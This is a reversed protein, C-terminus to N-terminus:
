NLFFNEKQVLCSQLLTTKYGLKNIWMCEQCELLKLKKCFRQPFFCSIKSCEKWFLLLAFSVPWGVKGIINICLTTLHPKEHNKRFFSIVRSARKHITLSQKVLLNNTGILIRWSSSFNFFNIKISIQNKLQTFQKRKSM